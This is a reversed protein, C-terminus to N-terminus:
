KVIIVFYCIPFTREFSFVDDMMKKKATTRVKNESQEQPCSCANPSHTVMGSLTVLMPSWANEPQEPSVLM